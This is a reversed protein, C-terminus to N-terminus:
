LRLVFIQNLISIFISSPSYRVTKLCINQIKYYLFILSNQFMVTNIRAQIKFSLSGFGYFLNFNFFKLNLPVM